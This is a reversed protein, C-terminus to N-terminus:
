VRLVVCVFTFDPSHDNVYAVIDIWDGIEGNEAQRILM